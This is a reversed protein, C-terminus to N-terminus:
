ARGDTKLGNYCATALEQIQIRDDRTEPLGGQGPDRTIASVRVEVNGELPYVCAEAQPWLTRARAWGLLAWPYIKALKGFGEFGLSTM